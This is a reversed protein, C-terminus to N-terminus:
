SDEGYLLAEMYDLYYENGVTKTKWIIECRAFGFNRFFYCSDGVWICNIKGARKSYRKYYWKAIEKGIRGAERKSVKLMKMKIGLVKLQGGIANWNADFPITNGNIERFTVPDDDDDDDTNNKM